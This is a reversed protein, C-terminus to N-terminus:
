SIIHKSRERLVPNKSLKIELNNDCFIKTARSHKFQLEELIKRLWIVQCVSAPQKKSSWSIAGIGFIFAYSSTSRRDDQDGAYDSNTFDWCIPNKVM